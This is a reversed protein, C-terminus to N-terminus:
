NALLGAADGKQILYHVFAACSVVMYKAEAFDVTPEDLMAHRIGDADSTYGYIRSFGAQLAPHIASKETLAKLAQDLTAADKKTLQKAVSEVASIGEKVANRYDPTPKLSLMRVSARIHAEAGHMGAQTAAAGAGEIADVEAQDAIPAIQAGVFRYASMERELIFNVAKQFQDRSVKAKGSNTAQLGIGHAKSLFELYNYVQAWALGYFVAKLWRRCEIPTDPLDDAQTKSFHRATVGAVGEWYQWDYMDHLLNWLSNRLERNMDGAQLSALPELGMRQTFTTAM